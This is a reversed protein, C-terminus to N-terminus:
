FICVRSHGSYRSCVRMSYLEENEGEFFVRVRLSTLDLRSSM